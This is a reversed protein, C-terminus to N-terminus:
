RNLLSGIPYHIKQLPFNCHKQMSSIAIKLALPRNNVIKINERSQLKTKIDEPFSEFIELLGSGRTFVIPLKRTYSKNEKISHNSVILLFLQQAPKLSRYKKLQNIFENIEFIVINDGIHAAIKNGSPSCAVTKAYETFKLRYRSTDDKLYLLTKYLRISFQNSIDKYIEFSKSKKDLEILDLNMPEVERFKVEFNNKNNFNIVKSSKQLEEDEDTNGLPSFPTFSSFHKRSKSFNHSEAKFFIDRANPKTHFYSQTRNEDRGTPDIILQNEDNQAFRMTFSSLSYASYKVYRTPVHSLSLYHEAGKPMWPKLHTLILRLTNHDFDIKSLDHENLPRNLMQDAIKKTLPDLVKKMNLFNVADLLTINQSLSNNSIHEPITSEKTPDFARSLSALEKWSNYTIAPLFLHNEETVIQNRAQDNFTESLSKFKDIYNKSSLPLELITDKLEITIFDSSKASLSNNEM